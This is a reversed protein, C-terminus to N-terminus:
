RNRFLVAAALAAIGERRGVAGLTENTTAKINIREPLIHLARGMNERMAPIHPSLRPAEAILTSDINGVAYGKERIVAGVKELLLLSSIGRYRDDNDPFYHGIDPCGAAGFLADMVAHVLVDADSHGLLGGREAIRVGGLVLPREPSVRHIDYGQGIRFPADGTSLRAMREEDEPVTVKFYGEKGEMCKVPVGCAECLSADDTVALGEELARKMCARFLATRAGQPTQARFLHNRDPTAKVFGDDGAMKITDTCPVCYLAAPTEETIEQFMRDFAAGDVGPRAGDHILVTESEPSLLSLGHAVSEMRTRGGAAYRVPVAPSLSAAIRRFAEEEEPRVVLIIEDLLVSQLVHRLTHWILPKGGAPVLLKNIGAGFREGRGAAAIIVSNM